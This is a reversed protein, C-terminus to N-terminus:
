RHEKSSLVSAKLRRSDLMDRQVYQPRLSSRSVRHSALEIPGAVSLMLQPALPYSPMEEAKVPFATVRIVALETTQGPTETGGGNRGCLLNPTM